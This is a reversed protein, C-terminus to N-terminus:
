APQYQPDCRRNFQDTIESDSLVDEQGHKCNHKGCPVKDCVGCWFYKPESNIKTEFDDIFHRCGDECLQHKPEWTCRSLDYGEWKVLYHSGVGLQKKGIICEITYEDNENENEENSSSQSEDKDLNNNDSGSTADDKMKKNRRMCANGKKSKSKTENKEQNKNKNKNKKDNLTKKRQPNENENESNEGFDSGFSDFRNACTNADNNNDNVHSNENKMADINCNLKIENWSDM